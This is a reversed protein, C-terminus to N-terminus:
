SWTKHVEAIHEMGDYEEVEWEVGDPIKVVKLSACMGNAEKKLLKVVKVLEPDNRDLERGEKFWADSPLESTTEGLDKIMWFVLDHKNISDFDTVKIYNNDRTLYDSYKLRDNVYGFIQVGKLEALKLTGKVSLSFGGYCGNIVVEM